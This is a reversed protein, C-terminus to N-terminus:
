PGPWVPASIRSDTIFEAGSRSRTSNEGDVFRNGTHEPAAVIYGHSALYQTLSVYANLDGGSGHSFLLLPFPGRSSIPLGVIV